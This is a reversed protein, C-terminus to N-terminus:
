TSRCSPRPLTPHPPPADLLRVRCGFSGTCGRGQGRRGDSVMDFSQIIDVLEEFKDEIDQLGVKEDEVVAQVILKQIGYAVDVIKFEAGWLLGDM